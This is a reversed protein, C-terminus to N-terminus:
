RAPALRFIEGTDTGLYLNGDPGQVASRFRTAPMPLPVSQRTSSLGDASINLIDIRNGVPTGHIGIGLYTVAMQGNWGGWQPGNLFTCSSMGQSMGDNTWAPPMADPFSRRDTMPM